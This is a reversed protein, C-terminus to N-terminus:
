CFTTHEFINRVHTLSRLFPPRSLINIYNELIILFQKPASGRLFCVKQFLKAIEKAFMNVIQNAYCPTNINKADDHNGAVVAASRDGGRPNRRTLPICTTDGAATHQAGPRARGCM